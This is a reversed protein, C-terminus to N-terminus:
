QIKRTLRSANLTECANSYMVAIAFLVTTAVVLLVDLM